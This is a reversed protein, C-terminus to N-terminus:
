HGYIHKRVRVPAHHKTIPVTETRIFRFPPKLARSMRPPRHTFGRENTASDVGEKHHADAAESDGSPGEADVDSIRQEAPATESAKRRRSLSSKRFSRTPASYTLVTRPVDIRTGCGERWRAAPSRLDLKDFVMGNESLMGFHHPITILRQNSPSASRGDYSGAPAIVGLVISSPDRRAWTFRKELRIDRSNVGVSSIAKRALEEDAEAPLWLAYFEVQDSPRLIKTSLTQVVHEGQGSDELGTVLTRVSAEDDFTMSPELSLLGQKKGWGGGGSTVRHLHAGESLALAIYNSTQRVDPTDSASQEGGRLDASVELESTSCDINVASEPTILAYVSLSGATPTKDSMFASVSEELELSASVPVSSEQGVLKSIVNGMSTSIERPRTLRQLSVTLSPDLFPHTMSLRNAHERDDLRVFDKGHVKEPNFMWKDVFMTSQRGNLFLTNAPRLRVGAFGSEKSGDMSAPRFNVYSSNNQGNIIKERLSDNRHQFRGHSLAFSLGPCGVCGAGPIPIRDVVCVRSKITHTYGANLKSPNSQAWSAWYTYLHNLIGPLFPDGEDLWNIFEPTIFITLSRLARQFPFIL